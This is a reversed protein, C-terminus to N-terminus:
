LEAPGTGAPGFALLDEEEKAHGTHSTCDCVQYSPQHKNLHPAARTTINQKIKQM